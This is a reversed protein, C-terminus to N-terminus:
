TTSVTACYASPLVGPCDDEWPDVAHRELRWQSNSIVFWGPQQLTAESVLSPGDPIVHDMWMIRIEDRDDVLIHGTRGALTQVVKGKWRNQIASFKKRRPYRRRPLPAM